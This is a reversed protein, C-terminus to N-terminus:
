THSSLGGGSEDLALVYDAAICVHFLRAGNGLVGPGALEASTDVGVAVGGVPEDVCEERAGHGVRWMAVYLIHEVGVGGSWPSLSQFIVVQYASAVRRQAKRESSRGLYLSERLEDLGEWSFRPGFKDVCVLLLQLEGVSIEDGM